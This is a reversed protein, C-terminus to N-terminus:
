RQEEGALEYEAAPVVTSGVQGAEAQRAATLLQQVAAQTLEVIRREARYRELEILRHVQSRRQRATRRTRFWRGITGSVMLLGLIVLASIM